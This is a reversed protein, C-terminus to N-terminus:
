EELPLYSIAVPVSIKYHLQWNREIGYFISLLLRQLLTCYIHRALLFVNLAPRPKSLQQQQKQKRLKM